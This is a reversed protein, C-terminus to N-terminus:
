LNYRMGARFNPTVTSLPINRARENSYTAKIENYRSLVMSFQVTYQKLIPKVDNRM